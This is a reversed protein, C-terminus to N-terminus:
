GDAGPLEEVPGRGQPIRSPQTAEATPDEAVGLASLQMRVRVRTGRGAGESMARIRGGSRGLFTAASHLGLGTGGTKTTFGAAFIARLKERPIGIGNDEVDIVLSKGRVCSRIRIRPTWDREAAEARERVADVANGVLNVLMQQFGSEDTNITEPTGECEVDVQVGAARIGDELLGVANKLSDRLDIEKKMTHRNKFAGQTRIIDAIHEVRKEARGAANRMRADREILDKGLAIMLPLALRGRPDNEIYDVWDERHEELADVLSQLRRKLTDDRLHRGITNIGTAVSNLANGINHLITDIIEIKGQAFAEALAEEARRADTVDRFVSVGGRTSGDPGMLSRANIRIIIGEDRGNNTLLYDEETVIEDKFAARFIPLDRYDLPTSGDPNYLRFKESWRQIPLGRKEMRTILTGARNVLAAEGKRDLVVIGETISDFVADMLSTQEQLKRLARERAQESERQTTVDRFVVVGGGQGPMPEGNVVIYIGDQRKENRVFMEKGVTRKGAIARVLPVDETPLRTKADTEFLGYRGAWQDPAADLMGIGVIREAAPNFLTFQGAADAAVVGDSMSAFVTRMLEDHEKTERLTQRLKLDSETRKTIDRIIAVAGSVKDDTGLSLPTASVSIYMGDPRQEDRLLYQEDNTSEGLLARVIPLEEQKVPTQGDVHFVGQTGFWETPGADLIHKGVIEEGSKNIHLLRGERNIVVVGESMSDLITSLLRTQDELARTTERLKTESEKSRTIDRYIVVAGASGDGFEAPRGSLSLHMGEPVWRNQVFIECDTEEGRLARPIPQETIALPTKGDSRFLGFAATQLEMDIDPIGGGLTRRVSENAFIYDGNGDAAVVGDDIHNLITSMLSQRSRLQEITLELRREAEARGRERRHLSLASEVSLHLQATGVPRSLYGFPRTERARRLMEPDAGDVLYVVAVGSQTRLREAADIGTRDLDVLALDASEGANEVGERLGSLSKARGTYGGESLRVILDAADAGDDSVVLIRPPLAADEGRSEADPVPNPPSDPHRVGHVHTEDTM